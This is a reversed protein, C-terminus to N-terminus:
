EAHEEHVIRRLLDVSQQNLTILDRVKDSLDAISRAIIVLIQLERERNSGSTSAATIQSQANM